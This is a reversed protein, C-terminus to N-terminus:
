NDLNYGAFVLGLKEMDKRYYAFLVHPEIKTKLGGRIAASVIDVGMATNEVDIMGNEIMSKLILQVQSPAKAVSPGNLEYKRVDVFYYKRKWPINTNKVLKKGTKAVDSKAAQKNAEIMERQRVATELDEKSMEHRGVINLAKARALLDTKSMPNEKLNSLRLIATSSILIPRIAARTFQRYAIHNVFQLLCM